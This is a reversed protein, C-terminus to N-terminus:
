KKPLKRPTSPNTLYSKIGLVVKSMFRFNFLPSLLLKVDKVNDFFLVESMVAPPKCMLIAFNKEYDIQNIKGSGDRVWFGDDGFEEELDYLHPAIHQAILDSKTEGRTTFLCSGRSEGRFANCHVSFLFAHPYIKYLKDIISVRESLSIDKVEDSIIIYQIKAQRLQGCLDDVLCRNLVGEYIWGEGNQDMGGDVLSPLYQFRKGYRAPTTYNGEEDLGGHGEDIFVVPKSPDIKQPYQRLEVVGIGKFDYDKKYHPSTPTPEPNINPLSSTIKDVKSISDRLQQKLEELEKKIEKYDMKFNKVEM